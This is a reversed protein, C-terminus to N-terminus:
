NGLNTVLTNLLSSVTSFVRASAQYASQYKMLNGVEEDMSVGSINDRQSTVLNQVSTQNTVLSNMSSLSQGLSSVAGSFYQDMTGNIADGGATSFSHNALAAVALAISNDGAAGTGAVLNTATVGNSVAITAATTGAANFFDGGATASPNYAANVSTVIQSALADLSNRLDQIPGTSATIAGYVSGSSFNLPTAAAGGTLVSGTLTLPGTVSTGNVLVVPNNSADKMAVQITGNANTVTQIPVDAALKEIATERQDRLDVASGPHGVEVSAIQKNLNAITLLQQNADAVSSQAQATADSQTQALNADTAQFTTTLIQAEQLLTQREGADTPQAAFSQFANFFDDLAASLGGTGANSTTSSAGSTNSINQGLGAQATQLFQQQTQYSNSLSIERSVEQDLLADRSQSVGLAQLGLSQAGQPTVITGLDGFIVSERSYGPNNVNALNKGTIKVAYSQANLAQVSADLTSFLGSM